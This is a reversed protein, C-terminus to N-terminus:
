KKHLNNSSEKLLEVQRHQESVDYSNPDFAPAAPSNERIDIGFPDGRL